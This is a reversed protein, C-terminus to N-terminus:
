KMTNRVNDLLDKTKVLNKQLNDMTDEKEQKLLAYEDKSSTNQMETELEKLRKRLQNEEAKYQALKQNMKTDGSQNEEDSSDGYKKKMDEEIQKKEKEKVRKRLELSDVKEDIVEAVLLTDKPLIKINVLSDKPSIKKNDINKKNKEAITNDKGNKNSLSDKPNIKENKTNIALTSDKNNAKKQTSDKASVNLDEEIDEPKSKKKKEMAAIKDELAKVSKQCDKMEELKKQTAEKQKKLEELRKKQADLTKKAEELKKNAFLELFGGLLRTRREGSEFATYEEYFWKGEKTFEYYGGTLEFDLINATTAKKNKVINKQNIIKCLNNDFFVSNQMLSDIKQKKRFSYLGTTDQVIIVWERSYKIAYLKFAYGTDTKGDLSPALAAVNAICENVYSKLLSDDLLEEQAQAFVGFLCIFLITITIKASMFLRFNPKM